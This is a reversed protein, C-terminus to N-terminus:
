GTKNLGHRDLKLYLGRRTVGLERAVRTINGAHRRMSEQIMKKELEGVADEITGSPKPADLINAFSTIPRVNGSFKVPIPQATRRLEPSLDEPKIKDNDTSRAVLRQIENALQRVNGAWEGVSLLDLAQETISINRKGFKAAYFNLYYKVIPLIEVRRERLPPVHLRIINLRYFLDERFLGQEIKEELACNTAAIIRVDVQIPRREGLPQIEGEQLFRLLKPQIELPLDGIEDLFLTGGEAARIMGPSDNMAGTFSGRRYGFFYGEALERPIATCNFPIFIKERRPSFNHVAKSVLEKGTGSEGTILVTVDSTRIKHIEEVLETMKPSSHIFGPMLSQSIFPNFDAHPQRSKERKRLTCVEMGLEVIKLMPAISIEDALNNGLAPYVVLTAGPTNPARLEFVSLNKERVFNEIADEIQREHLETTLGISEALTFGQTIFPYLRKQDDLEAVIIKKAKGEQQLVAALERFLLERSAAAAETLRLTLLQSNSSKEAPRASESNKLKELAAEALKLMPASDLGAFADAASAVYKLAKEPQSFGLTRGYEYKALAAHYQDEATEFFSLARSFHHAAIEEEYGALAILGRIRQIEGLVFFDSKLDNEEIARLLKEAERLREQRFYSEALVLEALIKHQREAIKQCITISERARSIAEDVNDQALYCRALNRLVRARYNERVDREALTIAEKFIKESETYDGRLLILEGISNLIAPLYKHRLEIALELSRRYAKEAQSWSGVLMLNIGLNHYAITAQFKQETEEFLGISKELCGIGESPRRLFWYTASMDSYIKGLLFPAPREGIIKISQHFYDLSKQYDETQFHHVAILAYAEAMRFWNGTERALSLSKEAFELSMAPKNLKHYVRALAVHVEPLFDKFNNAEAFDLAADLLKLAKMSFDVNSHAIALQILVSIYTQPKLRRLIDEPSYPKIVKLSQAYRGQTELAFSLLRNLKAQTEFSNSFSMLTYTIIQEAEVFRGEDLKTHIQLFTEALNEKTIVRGKRIREAPAVGFLATKKPFISKM